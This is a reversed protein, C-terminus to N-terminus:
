TKFYEFFIGFFGLIVSSAQQFGAPTGFKYISIGALPKTWVPNQAIHALLYAGPARDLKNLAM